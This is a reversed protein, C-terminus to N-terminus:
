GWFFGAAGVCAPVAALATAHASRTPSHTPLDVRPVDSETMVSAVVTKVASLFIEIV